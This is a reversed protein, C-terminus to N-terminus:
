KLKEVFEIMAKKSLIRTYSNGEDDYRTPIVHFVDDGKGDILLNEQGFIDVWKVPDMRDRMRDLLCAHKAGISM